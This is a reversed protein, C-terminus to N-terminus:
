FLQPQLALYIDSKENVCPLLYSHFGGYTDLLVQLGLLQSCTGNIIAIAAALRLLFADEKLSIQALGLHRM